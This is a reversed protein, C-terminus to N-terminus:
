VTGKVPPAAAAAAEEQARRAAAQKLGAVLIVRLGGAGPVTFPDSVVKEGDVTVEARGEVGPALNPFEARGQADTTGTRSASGTTVRVTQGSLNNGISERVV